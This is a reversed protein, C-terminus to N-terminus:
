SEIVPCPVLGEIEVLSCVHPENQRKALFSTATAGTVAEGEANKNLAWSLTVLATTVVITACFPRISYRPGKRAAPQLM